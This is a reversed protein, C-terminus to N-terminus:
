IFTDNKSEMAAAVFEKENAKSRVKSNNSKLIKDEEEYYCWYFLALSNVPCDDLMDGYQFKTIRIKTKAKWDRETQFWFLHSRRLSLEM